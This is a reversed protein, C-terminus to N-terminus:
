KKDILKKCDDLSLQFSDAHWIMKTKWIEWGTKEHIKDIIIDYIKNNWKVDSVFDVADNSRLNVSYQSSYTDVGIRDLFMHIYMTCIHDNTEHEDQRALVLTAQRTAPNKVITEVLGDIQNTIRPEYNEVYWKDDMRPNNLLTEEFIYPKDIEFVIHRLEVYNRGNVCDYGADKVVGALYQMELGKRIDETNLM